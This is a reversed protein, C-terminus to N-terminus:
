RGSRTRTGRAIETLRQAQSRSIGLESGIMQYSWHCEDALWRVVDYASDQLERVAERAQEVGAMALRYRALADRESEVKKVLASVDM